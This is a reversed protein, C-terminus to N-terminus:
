PTAQHVLTRAKDEKVRKSIKIKDFQRTKTLMNLVAAQSRQAEVRKAM